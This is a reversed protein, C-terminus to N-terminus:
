YKILKVSRYYTGDKFVIAIYAGTGVPSKFKNKGDWAITQLGGKEYKEASEYIMNGQLDYISLIINSKENTEIKFNVNNTFPNPFANFNLNQYKSKPIETIPDDVFNGQGDNFLLQLISQPIGEKIIAIDNFGNNDFDNCNLGKSSCNNIPLYQDYELQFNGKNNYIYLGTYDYATFVMDPLSDNNLDAIQAYSCFPSFQFYDHEFFQNNGLNEFFFVRHNPYVFTTHTIVDNDGDNDFDSILVDHSLTTTLVLQQFGAETSFYIETDSGSIVVDDRGDDNLDDCAIDIPPFTLDYYEPASFNGTGDNYTVGWLFDNNSIFVIDNLNDVSVDGISFHTLNDCLLHYTIEYNGSNIEIIAVNSQQGDYYQGIIEPYEDGIINTSYINIQGGYIFISDLLSYYGSPDNELISIGSWETQWFYNHGSAIDIDGDLDFDASCLTRAYAPLIYENKNDGISFSLFLISIVIIILRTTKM